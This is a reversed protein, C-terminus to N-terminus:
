NEKLYEHFTDEILRERLKILKIYLNFSQMIGILILIIIVLYFFFWFNENPSYGLLPLFYFSSSYISTFLAPVYSLLYPKMYNAIIILTAQFCIALSWIVAALNNDAADVHTTNIAPAFIAIINNIFPFTASILVLVSGLASITSYKVKSSRQLDLM